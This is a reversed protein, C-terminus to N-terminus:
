LESGKGNNEDTFQLHVFYSSPFMNKQKLIADYNEYSNTVGLNAFENFQLFRYKVNKGNLTIGTIFGDDDQKFIYKLNSLLEKAINNEFITQLMVASADFTKNWANETLAFNLMSMVYDNLTMSSWITTLRAQDAKTGNKRLFVQKFAEKLNRGKVYSPESINNGSEISSELVDSEKENFFDEVSRFVNYTADAFNM